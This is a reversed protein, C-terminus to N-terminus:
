HQTLRRNNDTGAQIGNEGVTKYEVIKTKAEQNRKKTAKEVFYNFSTIDDQTMVKMIETDSDFKLFYPVDEQIVDAKKKARIKCFKYATVTPCSEEAHCRKLPQWLTVLYDCYAEFYVTGYAADKDLELDGIGAKSRSTQSQMILFTNTQIAFAKMNHCIDEISQKADKSQKKLAGIHDIVVCGLKKGTKTQWRDIFSKIEDLSLNRFNGADDYNSLIIVKDNLPSNKGVICEWREAIEHKPQELPIFLHFYEPNRESFWKFMNLAFATKGVGSGAVLGLVQGLRYGKITNDVKNHCPFREGRPTDNSKTLISSVSEFMSIDDEDEKIEGLIEFTWVKDIINDAYSLRHIPARALAKASNVLVSTAEEKTFTNAFMIHALRYDGRSRDTSPKSWIDKVESNESLLKAFKLPLKDKIQVDNRQINYTKDYHQQCHQLDEMSLIPLLKDLDECTYAEVGTYIQECPIFKAEKKTNLTGPLRMLQFIQGVAPDTNLLRMMRRTLKLYNMANLDIVQWYVHVGNGSDVVSTPRIGSTSVAEIFDEKSAYTNTKLDFDVFVYNFKDIHSGDVNSNTPYSKPHNPLYFVNYGEKNHTQIQVETFDGELVRRKGQKALWDPAIMRTYM